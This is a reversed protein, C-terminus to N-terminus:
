LYHQGYITDTMPLRPWPHAMHLTTWLCQAGYTANHQGHTTSAARVTITNGMLTTGSSCHQAYFYHQGRATNAVLGVVADMAM